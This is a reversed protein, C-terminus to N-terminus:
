INDLIVFVVALTILLCGIFTSVKDFRIKPIDSKFVRYLLVFMIIYTGWICSLFFVLLSLMYFNALSPLLLIMILSAAVLALTTKCFFSKM